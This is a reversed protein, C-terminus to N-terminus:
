MPKPLDSSHVERRYGEPEIRHDRITKFVSPASLHGGDQRRRYVVGAFLDQRCRFPAILIADQPGYEFSGSLRRVFNRLVQTPRHTVALGISHTHPTGSLSHRAVSEKRLVAAFPYQACAAFLFQVIQIPFYRNWGSCTINRHKRWKGERFACQFRHRFLQTEFQEPCHL